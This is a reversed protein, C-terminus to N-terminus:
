LRQKKIILLVLLVIGLTLFWLLIPFSDPSASTSLPFLYLVDRATLIDLKCLSYYGFAGLYGAIVNQSIQSLFLGLAGMFCSISVAAATCSVFDFECDNSHLVFAFGTIMLFTLFFAAALRISVTKIYARSKSFILEKIEPFHETRTTPVILIIGVLSVSQELCEASQIGDLNEIGRIFHLLFLYVLSLLISSKFTLFFDNRLFDTM